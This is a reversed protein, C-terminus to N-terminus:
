TNHLFPSWPAINKRTRESESLIESLLTVMKDFRGENRSNIDKQEATLQNESLKSSLAPDLPTANYNVRSAIYNGYTLGKAKAISQLKQRELKRTESLIYSQLEEANDRWYKHEIVNGAKLQELATTATDLSIESSKRGIEVISDWWRSLITEEKNAGPVTKAMEKIDKNEYADVWPLRSVVGHLMGKLTNLLTNGLTELGSIIFDRVGRWMEPNFITESLLGIFSRGLWEGVSSPDTDKRSGEPGLVRGLTEIWERLKHSIDTISPKLNRLADTIANVVNLMAASGDPGGFVNLLASDIDSKIKQLLNITEAAAQAAKDGEIKNKLAQALATRGDKEMAQQFRRMEVVYEEASGASSEGVVKLVSLIEDDSLNRTNMADLLDDVFKGINKNIDKGRIDNVVQDIIDVLGPQGSAYLEQISTAAATTGISEKAYLANILNQQMVANGTLSAYAIEFNKLIRAGDSGEEGGYKQTIFQKLFALSVDDDKAKRSAEIEERSLKLAKSFLLTNSITQKALNLSAQESLYRYLGQRKQTELSDILYMGMEETTVALNSFQKQLEVLTNSFKVGGFQGIVQSHGEIVGLFTNLSLGTKDIMKVLADVSTEMGTQMRLSAGLGQRELDLSTTGVRRITQITLAWVSATISGLAAWKKWAKTSDEIEKSHADYKRSLADLERAAQSASQSQQELSKGSANAQKSFSAIKIDKAVNSKALKDVSASLAKTAASGDGGNNDIAERLLELISQLTSDLAWNGTM